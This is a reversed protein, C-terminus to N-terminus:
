QQESGKGASGKTPRKASELISRFREHESSILSEVNEVFDSFANEDDRYNGANATFLFLERKLLEETTRYGLWLDGFKRFNAIGTTIALGLSVVTIVVTKGTEGAFLEANLNALVPILLGLVVITTQTFMHWRKARNAARQYYGLQDTVRTEIYEEADMAM